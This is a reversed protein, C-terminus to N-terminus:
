QRGRTARSVFRLSQEITNKDQSARRSTEEDDPMPAPEPDRQPPFPSASAKPKIEDGPKPSNEPMWGSRKRFAKIDDEGLPVIDKVSNLFAGLENMALNNEVHTFKIKPRKTINPFSDRNWSFLRKGIQDDYQAALGDLASNYTFIGMNTSDIQSALAGTNTMTNLAIFQMMYISLSLIDYFRITELLNGAAQFGIDIVNGEMGFPFLAYNGEQASMIARAANKVLTKDDSSLTGKETKQVKLHGAAHEFGIGMVVELGYKIRELRWIAQLPANGEPNNPDGFTHHLCQNLQLTITPSPFDRQKYGIAKKRGDFEWGDFTSNDRWALRRMGILGDDYESRWDDKWTKGDAGKYSPPVWNRERRSPLAEWVGFGDFLIRTVATEIYKGFGGEMNDVDQEIFEQYRKDDDTPNEPLDVYPKVSKSWAAFARAVMVMTPMSTRLRAYLPAVTPWYLAKNYAESVFGMTEKLGSTGMENMIIRVETKEPEKALEQVAKTKPTTKKM